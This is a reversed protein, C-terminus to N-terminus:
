NAALELSNEALTETDTVLYTQWRSQEREETKREGPEIWENLIM